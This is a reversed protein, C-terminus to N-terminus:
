LVDEKHGHNRGHCEEAGGGQHGTSDHNRQDRHATHDDDDRRNWM